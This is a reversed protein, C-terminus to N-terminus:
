HTPMSSTEGAPVKGSAHTKVLFPSFEEGFWLIGNRDRRVSEIDFDSGTLLRRTKIAPTVRHRQGYQHQIRVAV